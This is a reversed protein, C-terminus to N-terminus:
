IQVARPLTLTFRDGATGAQGDSRNEARIDGGHVTIIQRAIALGLGSHAGFEAGAPRETYFRKFITELNDPPIGPGEDDVTIKVMGAESLSLAIRITGDEPSFTIANDILNRIM